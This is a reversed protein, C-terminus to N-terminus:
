EQEVTKKKRYGIFDISKKRGRLNSELQNMRFREAEEREEITLQHSEDCGM